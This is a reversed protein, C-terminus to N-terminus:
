RALRIRAVIDSGGKVEKNKVVRGTAGAYRGTGATLTGPNGSFILLSGGIATHSVCDPAGAGFECRLHASGIFRKSHRKHNGAFDLSYIDLVDGPKAEPYPPKDIVKGDAKTLTMSTPKDFFRLTQTKHGAGVAVASTAALAAVVVALALLKLKYM